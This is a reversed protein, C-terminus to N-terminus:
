SNSASKINLQISLNEDCISLKDFSHIIEKGNLKVNNISYSNVWYENNEFFLKPKEFVPYIGYDMSRLFASIKSASWNMDMYGNNPIDYSYHMKFSIATDQQITKYTNNLLLPFISNFTQLGANVCKRTGEIATMGPTVPFAQQCVINGKDIAPIVEHWSIGTENDMEYIAWTPANRGPHKPLLSNHFNIIKLNEKAIVTAPFIYSNHISIVLTTDEIAWLHQTLVKKDTIVNYAINKEACIKKLPSFLNNETDICSLIYGSVSNAHRICDTFLSGTGIFLVQQYV